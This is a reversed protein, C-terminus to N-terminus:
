HPQLLGFQCHHVVVNNWLGQSCLENSRISQVVLWLYKPSPTSMAQESSWKSKCSICTPCLETVVVILFLASLECHLKVPTYPRDTNWWTSFKNAMVGHTRAPEQPRSVCTAMSRGEWSSSSNIIRAWSLKWSSCIAVSCSTGRPNPARIRTM